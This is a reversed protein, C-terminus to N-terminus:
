FTSALFYSSVLLPILDAKELRNLIQMKWDDGPILRVDSWSDLYGKNHSIALQLELEGRFKEGPHAYSIFVLARRPESMM